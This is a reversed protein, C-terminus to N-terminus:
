LKFTLKFKFIKGERERERERETLRKLKGGEQFRYWSSSKADSM